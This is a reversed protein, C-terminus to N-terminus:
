RDINFSKIGSLISRMKNVKIPKSIYVCHEGIVIDNNMSPIVSTCIVHETYEALDKLYSKEDTIALSINVFIIDVRNNKLYEISDTINNKIIVNKAFDYNYITNKHIENCLDDEDILLINDYITYKSISLNNFKHKLEKRILFLNESATM